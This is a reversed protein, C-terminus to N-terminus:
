NTSSCVIRRNESHGEGPQFSFAGLAKVNFVNLCLLPRRWSQSFRHFNAARDEMVWMCFVATLVHISRSIIKSEQDANNKITM